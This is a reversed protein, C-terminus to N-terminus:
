DNTLYRTAIFYRIMDASHSFIDHVPKPDNGDTSKEKISYNQMALITNECRPHILLRREGNADLVFRRVTKIGEDVKNYAAWTALGINQAEASFSVASPDYYMFDLHSAKAIAIQLDETTLKDLEKDFAIHAYELAQRLSEIALKQTHVVENFLCVRDPKGQAFRVQWLGIVRQDSYGDDVSFFIPYHPDYDADSTVNETMSFKPYVIGAYGPALAEEETAPYQEYVEDPSVADRTMKDYWAQDRNPHANWGLFVPFYSNYGLRANRYIKKFATVPTRKNVRSVMVLKGGAAITPKIASLMKDLDPILDAEDILAFTATYSDGRGTPFARVSSDNGLQRLTKADFKVGSAYDKIWQPLRNYMGWLREEGALYISEDERLSFILFVSIPKFIMQWLGYALSLWSIGIQRPKLIVTLQHQHIASIVQKQSDWLHFPIWEAVVSDFIQCYSEIFYEPSAICRKIEHENTATALLSDLDAREQQTM